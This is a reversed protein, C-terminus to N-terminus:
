YSLQVDHKLCLQNCHATSQILLIALPRAGVYRPTRGFVRALHTGLTPRVPM